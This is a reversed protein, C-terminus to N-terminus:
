HGERERARVREPERGCESESERERASKSERSCVLQERERESRKEELPALSYAHGAKSIVAGGGGTCIHIIDVWIRFESGETLGLTWEEM